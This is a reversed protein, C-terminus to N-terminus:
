HYMRYKRVKGRERDSRDTVSRLAIYGIEEGAHVDGLQVPLRKLLRAREAGDLSSGGHPVNVNPNDRTLSSVYDFIDPTTIYISLCLSFIGLLLLVSSCIILSGVWGGSARYIPNQHTVTAEMKIMTMEKFPEDSTQNISKKGWPDNRTMAVPWRSSDWFTNMVRTMRHSMDTSRQSDGIYEVWNKVSNNPRYQTNGYIYADVPNSLFQSTNGGLRAFYQLFERTYMGNNVIDYPLFSGNRKSRPVNIRRLRGVRCSASECLMNAEVMVSRMSCEFLYYTLAVAEGPAITYNNAPNFGGESQLIGAANLERLYEIQTHYNPETVNHGHEADFRTTINNAPSFKCDFYMYEYPVTFNTIGTKSLNVINVGTLAAYSHNAQHNITYWSRTTENRREEQELQELRPIKPHNWIDAQSWELTDTTMLATSVMSNVRNFDDVNFGGAPLPSTADPDVSFVLRSEFVSNSTEYLLRLASQGGLPSLAWLILLGIALFNLSRLSIAHSVTSVLSQSGLIRELVGLTTGEQARWLAIKKLSRGALATFALPFLTPGLLIAEQVKHGRDSINEGDLKYAIAAL